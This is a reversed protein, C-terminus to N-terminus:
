SCCRSARTPSRRADPSTRTPTTTTPAETSRSWPRTRRSATPGCSGARSATAPPTRSGCRNGRGGGPAARRDAAGAGTAADRWAPPARRERPPVVGRRRAAGRRGRDHWGGRRRRWRAAELDVRVLGHTAEHDHHLLLAGGGPFWDALTVTGPLGTEIEILAGARTGCGPGRSAASRASCWWGTTAPCRRGVPRSSRWARTPSRASRRAPAADLVRVAPNEINSTEAHWIALLRADASFGGPGQPWDQGVGAPQEHRYLERVPEWGHRVVVLYGDDDSFGAAVSDGVLSLGSMWMDPLEPFLPRDRRGRVADGIWRGREDGQTSGGCWARATPLSIPRRPASGRPRLQRREGTALDWSWAQSTGSETSVVALRSPDDHGRRRRDDAHDITTELRRDTM